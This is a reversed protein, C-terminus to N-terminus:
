KKRCRPCIGSFPVSALGSLWEKFDGKHEHTETVFGVNDYVRILAHHSQNYFRIGMRVPLRLCTTMCRSTVASKSDRDRAKSSSSASWQSQPAIPDTFSALRCACCNPEGFHHRFVMIAANLGVIV